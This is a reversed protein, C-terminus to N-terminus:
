LLSFIPTHTFVKFIKYAAEFALFFQVSNSHFYIGIKLHAGDCFFLSTEGHPDASKNSFGFTM